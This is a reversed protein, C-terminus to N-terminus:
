SGGLQWLDGFEGSGDRGGFLLLRSRVADAILTAGSRAAPGVGAPELESWGLSPVDIQWMDALYGGDIDGGGFIFAQDNLIALAYLQRAAAPPDAQQSWSRAQPDFAWLDGLAKVGTTQGGYLILGSTATWFCDHLCRDVPLSGEATRDFWRQQTLDYARTDHFRGSDMTFGHSMWFTGDPGFGGCSGYRSPPVDGATPLQSWANQTPDYTWMDDFFRDATQQGSWVILGISGDWSAVHGFRAAPRPDPPQLQTWTDTDLDYRWLDDLARGRARGGFLYAVRGIPDVTWTQDERASPADPLALSHWALDLLPSAAPSLAASPSALASSSAQASASPTPTPTGLPPTPSGEPSASVPVASATV